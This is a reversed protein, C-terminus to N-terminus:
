YVLIKQTVTYGDETTAQIFCCGSVAPVAVSHEGSDFTGTSFLQGTASYVKYSGDSESQINVRARAKSVVNPYVLVPHTFVEPVPATIVLPATPINYNEGLRTAYLVVQDGPKLEKSYLYPLGGNQFPENNLYWIYSGFEYGGNYESRLQAVVDDWNQEIIWSPYSEM